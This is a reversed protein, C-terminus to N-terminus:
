RDSSTGVSCWGLKGTFLAEVFRDMFDIEETFFIILLTNQVFGESSKIHAPRNTYIRCPDGLVGESSNFPSELWNYRTLVIQGM